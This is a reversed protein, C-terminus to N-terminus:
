FEITNIFEEMDQLIIYSAPPSFSNSHGDIWEEIYPNQHLQKFQDILFHRLDGGTQKMESWISSRNELVYVIDEFDASTRGDDKGRNRFAELKSAIFYPPSFIRVKHDKDIEFVVSSNFGNAYWRNSFGLIEESIPMVDVTLDEQLDLIIGPVIYRGIFRANPDNKFGMSRLQIELDAFSAYSGVEVVIDIDETPRVEAAERTAYLSVTAGGVFVVEDRLVGLANYIAKIRTINIQSM